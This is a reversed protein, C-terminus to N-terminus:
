FAANQNTYILLNVRLKKQRGHRHYIAEDWTQDPDNASIDKIWVM